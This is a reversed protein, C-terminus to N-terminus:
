DASENSKRLNALRARVQASLREAVARSLEEPDPRPTVRVPGQAPDHPQPPHSPAPSAALRAALAPGLLRAAAEATRVDVGKLRLQVRDIHLRKM